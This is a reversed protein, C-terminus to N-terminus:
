REKEKKSGIETDRNTQREKVWERVCGRESGNKWLCVIDLRVKYMEKKIVYRISPNHTLSNKLGNSFYFNFFGDM